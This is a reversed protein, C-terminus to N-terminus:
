ILEEVQVSGNEAVPDADNARHDAVIADGYFNRLSPPLLLIKARLQTRANPHLESFPFVNEDFVVDRSIYIHGTAVDLCRYGKHYNPSYGLFIRRKSRFELKRTNYPRLHPWCACGFVKLWSYNPTTDFLKEFPSTFDLVRSPLQNILYAATSFVEDWFKLPMAAHALLSLGMEVIHRHKRKVSSNQQHTHPCSVHHTIGVRQFFPMLKQYEGRGGGGLDTQIALIKKNLLCKVRQQFDHFKHIVNSKNKLLYIWTFKSFDDIFSVYYKFKGVSSPAPGWVDSFVLELPVKSVSSKPFPL